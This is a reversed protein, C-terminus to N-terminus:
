TSHSNKDDYLNFAKAATGLGYVSAREKETSTYQKISASDKPIYRYQGQLQTAETFAKSYHERGADKEEKCKQLFDQMFSSSM